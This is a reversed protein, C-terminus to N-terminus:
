QKKPVFEQMIDRMMTNLLEIVQDSNMMDDITIQGVIHSNRRGGDLFYGNLARYDRANEEDKLLVYGSVATLSYTNETVGEIFDVYFAKQKENIYTYMRKYVNSVELFSSPEVRRYYPFEGRWKHRCFYENLARRIAGHHKRCSLPLVRKEYFRGCEDLTDTLVKYLTESRKMSAFQIWYRCFASRETIAKHLWGTLEEMGYPALYDCAADLDNQSFAFNEAAEEDFRILSRGIGAETTPALYFQILEYFVCLLPLAHLEDKDLFEIGLIQAKELMAKLPHMLIRWPLKDANVDLPEMASDYNYLHLSGNLSKFVFASERAQYPGESLGNVFSLRYYPIQVKEETGDEMKVIETREFREGALHSMLIERPHRGDEILVDSFDLELSMAPTSLVDIHLIRNKIKYPIKKQGVVYEALGSLAKKAEGDFLQVFAKYEAQEKRLDAKATLYGHVIGNEAVELEEETEFGALKQLTQITSDALDYGSSLNLYREGLTHLQEPSAGKVQRYDRYLDSMLENDVSYHLM